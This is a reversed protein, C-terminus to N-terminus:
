PTPPSSPRLTLRAFPELIGKDENDMLWQWTNNSPNYKFTTHFIAPGYHFVFAITNTTDKKATGISEPSVSGYDDLWVCAYSSTAQLWGVYVTAQYSPTGTSDKEESVEDIRLYQHNLVWRDTINHTTHKKAIVGTAVWKGALHSLLSDRFTPQQANAKLSGIIIAVLLLSFKLHLKM